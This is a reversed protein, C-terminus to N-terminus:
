QSYGFSTAIGLVKNYYSNSPNYGWLAKKLNPYGCDKLYKAASFIADTVNGIDAQGDGDGDVGHRRWTSPLFQMPGTAGSANSRYTSGSAGTEVIHIAKIISPDVGYAAGANQYISDFNVPDSYVRYERALTETRSKQLAAEEKQKKLNQEQQDVSEGLVFADVSSTASVPQVSNFNTYVDTYPKENSSGVFSVTVPVINFFMINFLVMGSGLKQILPFIHYKKEKNYVGRNKKTRIRKNRLAMFKWPNRGTLNLTSAKNRVDRLIFLKSRRWVGIINAYFNVVTLVLSLCMLNIRWRTRM